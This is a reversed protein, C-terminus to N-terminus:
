LLSYKELTCTPFMFMNRSKTWLFIKRWINEIYDMAENLKKLM